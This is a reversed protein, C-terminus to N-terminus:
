PTSSTIWARCRTIWAGAQDMAAFLGQPGLQAFRTDLDFLRWRLALVAKLEDLALGRRQLVRAFREINLEVPGNPNLLEEDLPPSANEDGRALRVNNLERLPSELDAALGLM